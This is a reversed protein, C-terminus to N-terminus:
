EDHKPIKTSLHLLSTSTSAQTAQLYSKIYFNIQLCVNQGRM